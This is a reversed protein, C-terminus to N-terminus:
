KGSEQKRAEAIITTKDVALYRKESKDYALLAPWRRMAERLDISAQPTSVGFKKIIHTRNIFGFIDVSEKIWAVRTETFWNSM